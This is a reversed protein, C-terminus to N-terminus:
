LREVGKVILSALAFFAGTLIVFVLDSMKTASWDDPPKVPDVLSTEQCFPAADAYQRTRLAFRASGHRRGPRRGRDPRSTAWVSTLAKVARQM